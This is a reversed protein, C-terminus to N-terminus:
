AKWRAIMPGFGVELLDDFNAKLNVMKKANRLFTANRLIWPCSQGASHLHRPLVVRRQSFNLFTNFQFFSERIGLNMRQPAELISSLQLFHYTTKRRSGEPFNAFIMKAIQNNFTSVRPPHFGLDFDCLSRERRLLMRTGFKITPTLLFISAIVM